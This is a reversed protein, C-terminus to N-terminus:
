LHVQGADLNLVYKSIQLLLLYTKDLFFCKGELELLEGQEKVRADEFPTAM